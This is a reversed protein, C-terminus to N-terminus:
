AFRYRSIALYVIRAINSMPVHIRSSPAYTTGRYPRLTRSVDRTAIITHYPSVVDSFLKSPACMIWGCVCVYAGGGFCFCVSLFLSSCRMAFANYRMSIVLRVNERYSTEWTPIKASFRQTFAWGHNDGLKLKKALNIWCAYVFSKM